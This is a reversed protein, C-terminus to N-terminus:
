MNATHVNKDAVHLSWNKTSRPVFGPDGANGALVKGNLQVGLSMIQSKTEFQRLSHLNKRESGFIIYHTDQIQMEQMKNSNGQHSVM